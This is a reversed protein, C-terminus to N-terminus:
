RLRYYNFNNKFRAVFIFLDTYFNTKRILRRGVNNTSLDFASFYENRFRSDAATHLSPLGIQIPLPIFGIVFCRSYLKCIVNIVYPVYVIRIIIENTAYFSKAFLVSCKSTFLIRVFSRIPSVVNQKLFLNCNYVFAARTNEFRLRM